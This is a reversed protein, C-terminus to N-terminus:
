IQVHKLLPHANRSDNKQLCQLLFLSFIKDLINLTSPIRLLLYPCTLYVITEKDSKSRDCM